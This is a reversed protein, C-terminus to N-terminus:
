DSCTSWPVTRHLRNMNERHSFRNEVETIGHHEAVYSGIESSEPGSPVAQSGDDPPKCGLTELRNEDIAEKVPEVPMMKGGLRETEQHFPQRLDRRSDGDRSFACDPRPNTDVMEPPDDQMRRDDDSLIARDVMMDGDSVPTSASVGGPDPIIYQEAGAGFDDSFNHDAIIAPDAGIGDDILIDRFVRNDESVGTADPFL